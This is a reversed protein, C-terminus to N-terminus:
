PSAPCAGSSPDGLMNVFFRFKNESGLGISFHFRGVEKSLIHRTTGTVPYRAITGVGGVSRGQPDLLMNPSRLEIIEFAVNCITKASTNTFEAAVTYTGAPAYPLIPGGGAGPPYFTGTVSNLHVLDNVNPYFEVAGIDCVRVGDGNGDAPSPNGLQDTSPVVASANCHPDGEDVKVIGANDIPKSGALLPFHGKGPAVSDVFSGLGPNTNPLDSSATFACTNTDELNNGGSVITANTCNGGPPTIPPTTPLPARTNKAVITKTLVATGGAAIGAAVPAMEFNYIGAAINGSVTSNTVRVEHNSYIGGGVQARNRSITSQIAFTHGTNSIGGGSAGGSNGDIVSEFVRLEGSNRIGGGDGFVGTCSNASNGNKRITSRTLEMNGYNDVGGASGAALNGSVISGVMTLIGRNLIGGGDGGCTGLEAAFGGSITVNELYLSGAAAIHFIRFNPTGSVSSRAITAGLASRIHIASSTVSPLGNHGETSNNVKDLVYSGTLNIVNNFHPKANSQNIANILCAIDGSTCDFEAAALARPAVYIIFGTIFFILKENNRRL